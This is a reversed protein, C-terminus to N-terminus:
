QGNIKEIAKNFHEPCLNYRAMKGCMICPSSQREQTAKTAAEWVISAHELSIGLEEGGYFAFWERVNKALLMIKKTKMYSIIYMM